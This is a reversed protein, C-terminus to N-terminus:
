HRVNIVRGDKICIDDHWKGNLYSCVAKENANHEPAFVAVGIAIGMLMGIVILFMALFDTGDM